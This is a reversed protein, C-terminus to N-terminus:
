FINLQILLRKEWLVEKDVLSGKELTLKRKEELKHEVLIVINGTLFSVVMIISFIIYVTYM